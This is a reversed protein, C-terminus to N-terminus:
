QSIRTGLRIRCTRDDCAEVLEPSRVDHNSGIGVRLARERMPQALRVPVQDPGSEVLEREAPPGLPDADVQRVDGRDTGRIPLAGLSTRSDENGLPRPIAPGA